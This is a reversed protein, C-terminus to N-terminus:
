FAAEVVLSFTDSIFPLHEEVCDLVKGPSLMFSIEASWSKQDWCTPQPSPM